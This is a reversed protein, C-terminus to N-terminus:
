DGVEVIMEIEICTSNPGEGKELGVTSRAHRGREGYLAGLLAKAGNAVQSEGGFGPASNVMCLLKVIRTVKDLDGLSITQGEGFM